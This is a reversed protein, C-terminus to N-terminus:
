EAPTEVTAASGGGLFSAVLPALEPVEAVVASVLAMANTQVETMFGQAAQATESEPDLNPDQLTELSLATKGEGDLDLTREAAQSVTM